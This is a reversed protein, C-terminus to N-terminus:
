AVFSSRVGRVSVGQLSVLTPRFRNGDAAMGKNLSHFVFKADRSSMATDLINIPDACQTLRRGRVVDIEVGFTLKWPGFVRTRPM